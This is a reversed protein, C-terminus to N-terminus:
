TDIQLYDGNYMNKYLRFHILKTLYLTLISYCIEFIKLRKATEFNKSAKQCDSFNDSFSSQRPLIEIHKVTLGRQVNQSYEEICGGRSPPPFIVTGTIISRMWFKM